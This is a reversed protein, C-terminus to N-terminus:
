AIEGEEPVPILDLPSDGVLSEIGSDLEEGLFYYASLPGALFGESWGMSPPGVIHKGSIAKARMTLTDADTGTLKGATWTLRTPHGCFHGSVTFTM